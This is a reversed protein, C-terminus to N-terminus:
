GVLEVLVAIDGGGKTSGQWQCPPMPDYQTGQTKCGDGHVPGPDIGCPPNGRQVCLDCGLPFVGLMHENGSASIVPGLPTPAIQGTEYISILLSNSFGDVLSVDMVDYWNPNNLNLEAKTVGCGVPEDFSITANLYHDALPLDKEGNLDFSCALGTGTCFDWDDATIASDAGFSVYVTTTSPSKVRLTTGLPAGETGSSM